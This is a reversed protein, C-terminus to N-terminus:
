VLAHHNVDLYSDALNLGQLRCQRFRFNDCAVAFGNGDDQSNGVVLFQQIARFIGGVHGPQFAEAFLRLLIAWEFIIQGSATAM